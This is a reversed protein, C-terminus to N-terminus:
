DGTQLTQPKQYLRLRYSADIAVSRNGYMRHRLLLGKVVCMVVSLM